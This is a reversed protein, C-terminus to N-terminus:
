QIHNAVFLSDVNHLQYGTDLYQYSAKHELYESVIAYKSLQVNVKHLKDIIYGLQVDSIEANFVSDINVHQNKQTEPVHIFKGAGFGLIFIGLSLVVKKM